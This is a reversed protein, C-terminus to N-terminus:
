DKIFIPNGMQSELLEPPSRISRAPNSGAAEQTCTLCENWASSGAWLSETKTENSLNSKSTERKLTTQTFQQTIVEARRANQNLSVSIQCIPVYSIEPNTKSPLAYELIQNLSSVQPSLLSSDTKPKKMRPIIKAKRINQKHLEAKQITRM